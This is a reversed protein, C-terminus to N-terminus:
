KNEKIKTFWVHNPGVDYEKILENVAKNVGPYDIDHGSLIGGPKIKPAYAIIDKTVAPYSHDADIFVLDVSNNPIQDAVEYSSGQIPILRDKYKEKINDNYFMSIDRDISYIKLNDVNDLLFYTTRGFKVGVEVITEFNNRQILDLLFSGRYNKGGWEVTMPIDLRDKRKM